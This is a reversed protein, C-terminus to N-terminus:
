GPYVSTWAAPWLQSLPLEWGPFLTPVTLTDEGRFLRSGERPRWLAVTREVPDILLVVPIGLALLFQLKAQLVAVPKHPAAVEAVLAPLQRDASRLFYALDVILVDGTPLRLHSGAGVLSGLQRPEIWGFLFGNLRAAVEGALWEDPTSSGPQPSRVPPASPPQIRLEAADAISTVLATGGIVQAVRSRVEEPDIGLAILVRVAEGNEPVRLLGLLLHGTGIYSDNRERAEDVALRLARRAGVTLFDADAVEVLDAKLEVEHRASRLTAGLTKLTNAAVGTGEVLVGLLLHETGVAGHQLGRAEEQAFKVIALSKETFKDFM